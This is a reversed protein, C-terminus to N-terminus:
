VHARGIQSKEGDIVRDVILFATQDRVTSVTGTLHITQPQPEPEPEVPPEPKPLTKITYQPQDLSVKCGSDDTQYAGYIELREEPQWQLALDTNELVVLLSEPNCPTPGALTEEVKVYHQDSQVGPRLYTVVLQVEERPTTPESPQAHDPPPTAEGTTTPETTTSNTVDSNTVTSNTADSNTATSNATQNSNSGCGALVVILATLLIGIIARLLPIKKTQLTM